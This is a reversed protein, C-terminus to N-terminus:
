TAMCVIYKSDPNIDTAAGTGVTAAPADLAYAAGTDLTAMMSSTSPNGDDMKLDLTQVLRGPIGRSCIIYAGNLGVGSANKIPSSNVNSQGMQMGMPSGLANVPFYYAAAVDTSGELLRALRIHLWVNAAESATAADNWRGEIHGNGNGVIALGTSLHKDANADDGPIARYKDQYLYLATIINRFDVELKKERVSDLLLTGRTVDIM